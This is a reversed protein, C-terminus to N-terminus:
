RGLLGVERRQEIFYKGKAFGCYGSKENPLKPLEPSVRPSDLHYCGDSAILITSHHRENGWKQLRMTDAAVARFRDRGCSKCDM